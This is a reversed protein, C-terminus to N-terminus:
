EIKRYSLNWKYFLLLCTHHHMGTIEPLSVQIPDLDSQVEYHSGKEL